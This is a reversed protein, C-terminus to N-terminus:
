EGKEEKLLESNLKQFTFSLFGRITNDSPIGNKVNKNYWGASFSQSIKSTEFAHRSIKDVHMELQNNFKVRDFLNDIKSSAERELFYKLYRETFSAFFIRTLECFGSGNAAKTWIEFPNVNKDFVLSQQMQNSKTWESVADIMSQTAFTSYEKSNENKTIYQQISQTLEFINFTQPLNIQYESLLTFPNKLKSAHALLIIYKFAAIVGDDDSIRDFRSRVNKSTAKAIQTINNDSPSFDGIMNVIANWRNTRPLYGIREHGM